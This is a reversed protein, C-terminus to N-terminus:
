ARCHSVAAKQVRFFVTTSHFGHTLYSTFQPDPHGELASALAPINIPTGLYKCLGHKLPNHPCTSKTHAEGCFSCTHLFRCSSVSCGLDNFNNCVTKGGQYLIPRGRRDTDKPRPAPKFPNPRPTPVAMKVAVQRWSDDRMNLFRYGPANTDYLCPHASVARILKSEM